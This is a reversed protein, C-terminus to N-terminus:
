NIRPTPTPVLIPPATRPPPPRTPRPAPPPPTIPPPRPPPPKPPLPPLQSLVPRRGLRRAAQDVWRAAQRANVPTPASRRRLTATFQENARVREPSWRAGPAPACRVVGEVVIVATGAGRQARVLFQTTEAAAALDNTYTSSGGGGIRVIANFIEGFFLRISGVEVYTDHNLYVSNGDAFDIVAYTAGLTHARDGRALAMGPAYPVVQGGREVRVSPSDATFRAVGPSAPSYPATSGPPPAPGYPACGSLTLALVAGLRARRWSSGNGDM